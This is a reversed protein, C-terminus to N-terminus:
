LRTILYYAVAAVPFGSLLTFGVAKRGWLDGLRGALINGIVGLTGAAVVMLSYQGPTWGLKEQVYYGSFQFAPLAAVAAVYGTIAVGVARAPHTRGLAKLPGWVREFTGVGDAMRERAERFRSTEPIRRLFYPLLLVPVGGFAYLSRWGYPLIDIQAYAIAALGHGAAGLAALMGMGWGRHQAPFEETVIVFAVASGAVFFTRTLAQLLVFQLPTQAFATALTLVGMAMTSFVFVPRRGIRDAFPIVVISAIAGLRILALNLGFEHERMGLEEAIQKLASILMALDYEEFFLALAVAGLLRLAGGDLGAPVRGLFPPIWWPNRTRSAAMGEVVVSQGARAICAHVM